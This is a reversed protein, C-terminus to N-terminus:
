KSGGRDKVKDRHHQAFGVSGKLMDMEKDPISECMKVFTNITVDGCGMYHLKGADPDNLDDKPSYSRGKIALGDIILDHTPTEGVVQNNLWVFERGEVEVTLGLNLAKLVTISKDM